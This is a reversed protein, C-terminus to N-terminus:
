AKRARFKLRYLAHRQAACQREPTGAHRDGDQSRQRQRRAAEAHPKHPPLHGCCRRRFACCVASRPNPRRQAARGSGSHRSSIARRRRARHDASIRNGPELLALRQGAHDGRQRVHRLQLARRQEDASSCLVFRPEPLRHFCDDGLEGRTANNDEVLHASSCTHCFGASVRVAVLRRSHAVPLVDVFSKQTALTCLVCATLLQEMLYRQTLVHPDHAEALQRRERVPECKRRRFAPQHSCLRSCNPYGVDDVAAVDRPALRHADISGDPSHAEQAVVDHTCTARETGARWEGCRRECPAVSTHSGKQPLPVTSAAALWRPRSASPTSSEAFRARWAM